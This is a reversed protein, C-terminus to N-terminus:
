NLPPMGSSMGRYNSQILSVMNGDKDATTLYITEGQSIRGAEAIGARSSISKARKIAYEDSLLEKLPVKFFEMDAYYKARDEFVLKKAETFLHIHEVSGFEIESFDYEELIQLMQLAAIGQGNPPLEWVDYGRYNVSIPEAWESQHNKLDQLTL